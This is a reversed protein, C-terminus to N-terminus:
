DAKSLAEIEAPNLVRHYVRVDSVDGSFYVGDDHQAGILIPGSSETWPILDFVNHLERGNVYLRLEGLTQDFVAATHVWTDIPLAEGIVWSDTWRTGFTTAGWQAAPNPGFGLRFQSPGRPTTLAVWSTYAAPSHPRVWASVTVSGATKYDDNTPFHIYAGQGNFRYAGNPNGHRGAVVEAGHVVATTSKHLLDVASGHLPLDAVLGSSLDIGKGYNNAIVDAAPAFGPLARLQAADAARGRAELAAILNQREIPDFRFDDAYESQLRAWLAKLDPHGPASLADLIPRAVSYRPPSDENFASGFRRAWAHRRRQAESLYRAPGYHLPPDPQGLAELAAYFARLGVSGHTEGPFVQYRYEVNAGSAAEFTKAFRLAGVAIDAEEDGGAGLFVFRPTASPQALARDLLAVFRDDLGWSPSLAINAQFVDPRRIFAYLSYMGGNSHGALIHYNGIPFEATMHPILEDAIFSLYRDSPGPAFEGGQFTPTLDRGRDTNAIGAIVLPPIRGTNVLHEAAIAVTRFTWEADLLVLLPAGPKLQPSAYVLIDRKEGLIKSDLVEQKGISLNFDRASAPQATVTFVIVAFSALSRALCQM